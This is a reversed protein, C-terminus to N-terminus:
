KAYKDECLNCYVSFFFGLDIGTNQTKYIHLVSIKHLLMNCICFREITIHILMEYTVNHGSDWRKILLSIAISKIIKGGAAFYYLLPASCSLHCFVFVTSFM